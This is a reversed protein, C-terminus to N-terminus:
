NKVMKKVLSNGNPLLLKAFYIGKSQTSLDIQVKSKQISQEMIKEGLVSYIEIRAFNTETTYFNTKGSLSFEFIGSSPNPWIKMQVPTSLAEVGTGVPPVIFSYYVDEEGNLTNTWALHAGANESILDFYDGMKNQNPYGVHPDFLPSLKENSSWTIGQDISYSYYLASSDYGFIDERTDLWVADIRGNPAVAMTGMWQTMNMADDNIAIPFEWSLGGDTSRSFMIDGPDGNSLRSIASLVYVNGQGPGNSRDVDINAQGLLGAPNVSAGSSVSGDMYVGVPPEWLITSGPTQANMTKSVVLSDIVQEGGVIYLEGNPGIAMTGWYPEGDVDTCAEYTDGADSSRTFMNPPCATYFVSWFSYINGMGPGASRDIAMWQKDGGNAYVGTDWTAGGDSSRYVYCLFGGLSDVTLSNYYFNGSSDYDLVPDSHFVGADISGPFNWSQGGNSTYAWGAQRFNNAVDDFQRWGIAMQNPNSPNLTLNPENAADGVINHGLSDVNVQVTFISSNTTVSHLKKPIVSQPKTPKSAKKPHYADEIQEHMIQKQKSFPLNQAKSISPYLALFSLLCFFTCGIKKM